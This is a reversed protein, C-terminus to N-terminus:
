DEMLLMYEVKKSSDGIGYVWFTLFVKKKSVTAIEMPFKLGTGLPNKFNTCQIIINGNEVKSSLNQEENNEEDTFIFNVQFKFGNEADIEINLINNATELIATESCIVKLDDIKARVKM